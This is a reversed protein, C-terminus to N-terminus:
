VMNTFPPGASITDAFYLPKNHSFQVAPSIQQELSTHMDLKWFM